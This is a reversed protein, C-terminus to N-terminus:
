VVNRLLNARHEKALVNTAFRDWHGCDVCRTRVFMSVGTYAYGRRHVHESGCAGCVPYDVNMFLGLNPHNRMWPRLKLYVQELTIVDQKNYIKMERWARKNGKICEAWLEHGAYEKHKLKEDCGLLKALYELKNSLLRFEKRATKLTDIQKM